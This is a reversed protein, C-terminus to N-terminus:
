RIPLMERASTSTSDPPFGGLAEAVVANLVPEQNARDSSTIKKTATGHYAPAHSAVDFIDVALQGETYQRVKTETGYGYGYYRSRNYYGTRFSAPYSDVKIQDRAGVTFAIAMNAQEVDAVERFGKAQMQARIAQMIRGELMPNVIRDSAVIMPNASIFAFTQYGSFNVAPNYDYTAKIAPGTACGFVLLSVASAAAFRSLIRKSM